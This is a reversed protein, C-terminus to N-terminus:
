PRSVIGLRFLGVVWFMHLHLCFLGGRNSLGSGSSVSNKRGFISDALQHAKTNSLTNPECQLWSARMQEKRAHSVGLSNIQTLVAEGFTMLKAKKAWQNAANVQDSSKSVADRLSPLGPRTVGLIFPHDRSDINSDLLTAAEADTRAVLILNTGLIDNALRAAVLRDIHEQTAVLVKGGM